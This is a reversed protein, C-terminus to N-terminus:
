LVTCFRSSRPTDISAVSPPRKLNVKTGHLWTLIKGQQDDQHTDVRETKADEVSNIQEYVNVSSLLSDVRDASLGNVQRELNYIAVIVSEKDCITPTLKEDNNQKTIQTRASTWCWEAKMRKQISNYVIETLETFWRANVFLPGLASCAILLGDYLSIGSKSFYKISLHTNPISSLASLFVIGVVYQRSLPKTGVQHQAFNNSLRDYLYLTGDCTQTIAFMLYTSFTSIASMLKLYEKEDSSCQLKQCPMEIADSGVNLYLMVSGLGILSGFLILMISKDKILNVPVLPISKLFTLAQEQNQGHVLWDENNLQILHLRMSKLYNALGKKAQTQTYSDSWFRRYLVRLDDFFEVDTYYFIAMNSIFSPIGLLIKIEFSYSSLSEILLSTVAFSSMASHITILQKPMAYIFKFCSERIDKSNCCRIDVINEAIEQNVLLNMGINPLLSAIGFSYRVITKLVTNDSDATITDGFETGLLYFEVSAIAGIMIGAYGACKKINAHNKPFVYDSLIDTPAVESMNNKRPSILPAQEPFFSVSSKGDSIFESKEHSDM